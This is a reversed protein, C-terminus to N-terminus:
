HLDRLAEKERGEGLRDWQPLLVVAGEQAVTGTMFPVDRLQGEVALTLPDRPLYPRPSASDVSWSFYRPLPYIYMCLLHTHSPWQM